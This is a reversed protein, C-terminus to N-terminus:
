DYAVVEVYGTVGDARLARVRELESGYHKRMAKKDDTRYRYIGRQRAKLADYRVPGLLKRFFDTHEDPHKGLYDHSAASLCCANDPFWRVANFARSIFHSCHVDRGKREPFILGSYACTWDYAERILDSFVADLADRKV